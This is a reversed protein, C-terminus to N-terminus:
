TQGEAKNQWDSVYPFSLDYNKYHSYLSTGAYFLHFIPPLAYHMSRLIIMDINTDKICLLIHVCMCM